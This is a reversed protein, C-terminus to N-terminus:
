PNSEKRVTVIERRVKEVWGYGQYIPFLYLDLLVFSIFPHNSPNTFISRM